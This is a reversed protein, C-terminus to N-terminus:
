RRKKSQNLIQTPNSCCPSAPIAANIRANQDLYQFWGAKKRSWWDSAAPLGMAELRKLVQLFDTQTQDYVVRIKQREPYTVVQRVGTMASLTATIQEAQLDDSLKPIRIWHRIDWAGRRKIFSDRSM